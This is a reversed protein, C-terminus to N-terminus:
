SVLRAKNLNTNIGWRLYFVIQATVLDSYERIAEDDEEEEEFIEAGYDVDIYSPVLGYCKYFVYAGYKRLSDPVKM